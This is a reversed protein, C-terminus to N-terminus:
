KIETCKWGKQGRRITSYKINKDKCWQILNTVQIKNGCPDIIEWTRALKNAINKRREPDSMIESVRYSRKQCEEESHKFGTIPHESGSKGYFFNNVGSRSTSMKQKTEVSAKKGRRQSAWIERTKDSPKWGKRGNSGGGLGTEPKENAWKKSKSIDFFESFFEAFEICDHEDNFIRYWITKVFEKGHKKLHNNWHRGSGNYKELLFKESRNTKGFYLMGTLTHKKIYLYTPKFNNM